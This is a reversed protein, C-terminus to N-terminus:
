FVRELFFFFFSGNPSISVVNGVAIVWEAMKWPGCM